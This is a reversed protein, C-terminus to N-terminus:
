LLDPNIGNEQLRRRVAEPDKGKSIAERARQLTGEVDVGVQPASSPAPQAAVPPQGQAPAPAPQGGAATRLSAMIEETRARMLAPDVIPQGAFENKAMQSAAKRIEVEGMQRTGRAYDLAGQADGPHVELWAARKEEFVSRKGGAGPATKPVAQVSGATTQGTRRDFAGVTPRGQDDLTQVPQFAAGGGAATKEPAGYGTPVVEGTRENLTGMITQGTAPDVMQVSRFRDQQQATKSPVQLGPQKTEGTRENVLVMQPTGDPGIITGTRWKDAAGAGSSPKIFAGQDTPTVGGSRKDFAGVVPMGNEDLVTVPAYQAGIGRLPSKYVPQGTSTVQPTGPSNQDYFGLVPGAEGDLEVKTWNPKSRPIGAKQVAANYREPWSGPAAMFAQVYVQGQEPDDRYLKTGTDVARAFAGALEADQELEPAVDLGHQGKIARYTTMDGTGLARIAQEYAKERQQDARQQAEFAARGGGPVQSLSQAMPDARVDNGQLYQQAAADLADQQDMQRQAGEAQLRRIGRAQTQDYAQSFADVAPNEQGILQLRAM